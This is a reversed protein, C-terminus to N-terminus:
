SVWSDEGNQGGYLARCFGQLAQDSVEHSADAEALIPLRMLSRCRNIVASLAQLQATPLQQSDYERFGYRDGLLDLSTLSQAM